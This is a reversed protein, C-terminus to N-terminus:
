SQLYSVSSIIFLIFFNRIFFRYYVVPLIGQIWFTCGFKSGVEGLFTPAFAFLIHSTLRTNLVNKEVGIWINQPLVFHTIIRCCSMHKQWTHYCQQGVLVTHFSIHSTM